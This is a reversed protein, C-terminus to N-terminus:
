LLIMGPIEMWGSTDELEEDILDLKVWSQEYNMFLKCTFFTGPSVAAPCLIDQSSSSWKIDSVEINEVTAIRLKQTYLHRETHM